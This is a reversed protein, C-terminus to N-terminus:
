KKLNLIAEAVDKYKELAKEAEELGVGAKNAVLEIEEQSPKILNEEEYNGTIQFVEQGQANMRAVFPKKFVFTKNKLKILVEEADLVESKIGLQKMLGQM